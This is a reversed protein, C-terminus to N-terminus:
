KSSEAYLTNHVKCAGSWGGRAQDPAACFQYRLRRRWDARLHSRTRSAKPSGEIPYKQFDQRSFLKLTKLDNIMRVNKRVHSCRRAALGLRFRGPRFTQKPGGLSDRIPHSARPTARTGPSNAPPPMRATRFRAFAFPYAVKV